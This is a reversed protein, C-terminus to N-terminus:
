GGNFEVKSKRLTSMFPQRRGDIPRHAEVDLIFLGTSEGPLQGAQGALGHGARDRDRQVFAQAALLAPAAGFGPDSLKSGDGLAARPEKAGPGGRHLM